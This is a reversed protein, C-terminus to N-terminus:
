KMTGRKGILTVELRATRAMVRTESGSHYVPGNTQPALLSGRSPVYAPTTAARERQKREKNRRKMQM